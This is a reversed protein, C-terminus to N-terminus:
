REGRNQRSARPRRARQRIEEIPIMMGTVSPQFAPIDNGPLVLNIEGMLERPYRVREVWLRDIGLGVFFSLITSGVAGAVLSIRRKVARLGVPCNRTIISGDRRQYYRICLRGESRAILLEAESKSMESLNYVNLKCQGCFRVRENGYMSDWDVNCPAAVRVQDLTHNFLSM